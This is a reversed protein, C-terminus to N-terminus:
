AAGAECAAEILREAGAKAWRAVEARAEPDGEGLSQARATAGELLLDLQWALGAPDALGAEECLRRLFARTAAKHESVARRIECGPDAFEAAANSFMCGRFEPSAFWGEHWDFVATLRELPDASRERVYAALRERFAADKRAMAALILEEKSKFHNYLTMRAVGADQLIADLNTAQYGRRCFVRVAADILEDRRSPPM